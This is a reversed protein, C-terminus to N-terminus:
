WENQGSAALHGRGGAVADHVPDAGHKLSVGERRTLPAELRKRDVRRTDLELVKRDHRLTVRRAGRLAGGLLRTASLREGQVTAAAVGRLRSNCPVAPLPNAGAGEGICGELERVCGKVAGDVRNQMTLVCMRSGEETAWHSCRAAGGATSWDFPARIGGAALRTRRSRARRNGGLRICWCSADPQASTPGGDVAALHHWAKKACGLQDVVRCRKAIWGGTLERGLPTDSRQGGVVSSGCGSSRM